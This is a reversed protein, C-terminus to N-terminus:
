DLALLNPGTIKVMDNMHGPTEGGSGGPDRAM